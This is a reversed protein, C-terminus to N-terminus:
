RYHCSAVHGPEKEELPPAPSRRCRERAEPCRSAFPCGIIEGTQSPPQGELRVREGEVSPVASLLAQTYPHLPREMLRATPAREVIRGLYMVAVRDAVREVVPLDHAIFLMAIGAEERLRNLLGLIEAQVSVDLATVPEDAVLLKPEPAIARAIAVRQLQGGSLQHPYRHRFSPGLGVDRLLEAAREEVAEGPVVGHFRLPEAVLQVVQMRPNLAAHPDQFIVQIHRRLRRLEGKSLGTLDTGDFRITGERPEVLRLISRGLTTKGSGSEGVLGVVEGREIDLDVGDVARLWETEGLWRGGVPFHTRLGRVRLLPEARERSVARKAGSGDAESGTTGARDEPRGTM